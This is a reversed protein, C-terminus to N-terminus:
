EVALSPLHFASPVPHASSKLYDPVSCLGKSYRTSKRRNGSRDTAAGMKGRKKEPEGEEGNPKKGRRLGQKRRV